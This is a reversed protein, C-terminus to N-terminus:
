CEVLRACCSATTGRFGNLRESHTLINAYQCIKRVSGHFTKDPWLCRGIGQHASTKLYKVTRRNQPITGTGSRRRHAPRLSANTRSPRSRLLGEFRFQIRTELKVSLEETILDALPLIATTLFRRFSERQSTGDADTFLSVPVGCAGLVAEFVDRRLVPLTEPPNAGIRSPQWDRQPASMRGEGWGASTTEVMVTGGKALRIDKKLGALSDDTTGDGGDQPILYFMPSPAVPKKVSASNSTPPWREPTGPGSCPASAWGPGPRTSRMAPMCWRPAQCLVPSM